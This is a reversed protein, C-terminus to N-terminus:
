LTAERPVAITISAGAGPTSTISLDGGIAAARERMGQLGYSGKRSTTTDFGQGDDSITLRGGSPETVWEVRVVSAKAHKETNTLAEQLIRLLENEVVPTLRHADDASLEVNVQTRAGFATVVERAVAGLPRDDDVTTRLSRLTQRFEDIARQVTGRLEVLESDTPAPASGQIRELELTIFTLWQGLRDHLDRAIRTREESASLMRLRRFQRANDLTLGIADSLGELLTADHRSYRANDNHELVVVGTVGGKSTLATSLGAGRVTMGREGLASVLVTGDQHLAETALWPLEDTTLTQALGSRDERLVMWEDTGEVPSIVAFATPEFTEVLQRQTAALAGDLDLSSPLTRAVKNLLQLLDNAETLSDVQSALAIRRLEVRVMRNRSLVLIVISAAIGAIVVWGLPRTLGTNGGTAIATAVAVIVGVQAAIVGLQAGWGLAAVGATALLCLVFPSVMGDTIGIAAGVIAADVVAEAPVRRGVAGLALPRTTRWSTVFVCATTTWVPRFSGGAVLTASMGLGIVLASWRLATIVPALSREVAVPLVSKAEEDPTRPRERGIVVESPPALVASAAPAASATVM